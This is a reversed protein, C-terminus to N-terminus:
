IKLHMLSLKQISVKAQYQQSDVTAQGEESATCAPSVYAPYTQGIKRSDRADLEHGWTIFFGTIRLNCTYNTNPAVVPVQVWSGKRVMTFM